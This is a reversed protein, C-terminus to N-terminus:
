FMKIQKRLQIFSVCLNIQIFTSTSPLIKMTKLLEKAKIKFPGTTVL